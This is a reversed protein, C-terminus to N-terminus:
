FCHHIFPTSKPIHEYQEKFERRQRDFIQFFDCFHVMIAGRTRSPATSDIVVRGLCQRKTPKKYRLLSDSSVETIWIFKPYDLNILTDAISPNFGNEMDIRIQSQFDVSRILFTRYELRNSLYADFGTKCIVDKYTPFKPDKLGTPYALLEEITSRSMLEAEEGSLTAERPTIVIIQKVESFNRDKSSDEHIPVKQYPGVTDNHVIFSPIRQISVRINDALYKYTHGIGVLAHDNTCFIVPLGSEIYRYAIDALKLTRLGEIDNSYQPRIREVDQDYKKREAEGEPCSGLQEEPTPIIGDIHDSCDKLEERSYHRPYFGMGELADVMQSSTLGFEGPFVRGAGKAKAFQNVDSPFFERYGFHQSMYRGLMWLSAQACAGVQTDQQSFPMGKVVLKQGLIHVDFKACCHIFETNSDLTPKLITRGVKQLDTPRLVLFGMYDDSYRTINQLYDEPLTCSFFHLRVTRSPYTKFAKSYFAAYEDQYDLDVYKDEFVVSKCSPEPSDNLHGLIDKLSKFDPSELRQKLSDIGLSKLVEVFPRTSGRYPFSCTILSQLFDDSDFDNLHFKKFYSGEKLGKLDFEKNMFFPLGEWLFLQWRM